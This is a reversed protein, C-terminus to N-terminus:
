KKDFKLKIFSVAELQLWACLRAFSGLKNKVIKHKRSTTQQIISTILKYQLNQKLYDKCYKFSPKALPKM